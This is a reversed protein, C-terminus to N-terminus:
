IQDSAARAPRSREYSGSRSQALPSKVEAPFRNARAATTDLAPSNKSRNNRRCYRVPPGLPPGCGAKGVPLPAFVFAQFSSCFFFNPNGRAAIVQAHFGIVRKVM